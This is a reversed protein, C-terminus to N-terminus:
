NSFIKISLLTIVVVSDLLSKSSLALPVPLTIMSSVSKSTVPSKSTIPVSDALEKFMVVSIVASLYVLPLIKISFCSNQSFSALANTVPTISNKIASSVLGCVNPSTTRVSRLSSVACM